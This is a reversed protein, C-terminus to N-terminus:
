GWLGETSVTTEGNARAQRVRERFREVAARDMSWEEAFSMIYRFVTVLWSLLTLAILGFLIGEALGTHALYWPRLFTYVAALYLLPLQLRLLVALRLLLPLLFLVASLILLMMVM